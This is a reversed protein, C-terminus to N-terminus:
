GGQDWVRPSESPASGGWTVLNQPFRSRPHLQAPVVLGAAAGPPLFAGGWGGGRQRSLGVCSLARMPRARSEFGRGESVRAGWAAGSAGRGGSWDGRPPSPAFSEM